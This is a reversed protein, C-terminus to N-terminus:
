SHDHYLPSLHTCNLSVIKKEDKQFWDSVTDNDDDTQPYQSWIFRMLVFRKMNWLFFLRKVIKEGGNEWLHLLFSLFFILQISLWFHWITTTQKNMQFSNMNRNSDASLSLSLHYLDMKQTFKCLAVCSNLSRQKPRSFRYRDIMM